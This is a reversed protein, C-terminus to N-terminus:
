PRQASIEQLRMCGDLIARLYEMKEHSRSGFLMERSGMREHQTSNWFRFRWTKSYSSREVQLIKLTSHYKAKIKSQSLYIVFNIYVLLAIASKYDKPGLGSITKCSTPYAGLGAMQCVCESLVMGIYMRMRFTVFTPYIYGFRYLWSREAFEDTLAYQFIIDNSLYM